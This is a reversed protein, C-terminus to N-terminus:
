EDACLEDVQTQIRQAALCRSTVVDVCKHEIVRPSRVGTTCGYLLIRVMLRPDYPPAGRWETDAARIRFM